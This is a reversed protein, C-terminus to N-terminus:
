GNRNWKKKRWFSSNPKRDDGIENEENGISWRNNKLAESEGGDGHRHRQWIGIRGRIATFVFVEFLNAALTLEKKM